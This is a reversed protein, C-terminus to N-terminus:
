HRSFTVDAADFLEDLTGTSNKSEYEAIEKTLRDVEAQLAKEYEFITMEEVALVM